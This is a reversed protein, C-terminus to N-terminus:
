PLFQPVLVKFVSLYYKLANISTGLVACSLRPILMSNVAAISPSSDRMPERETDPSSRRIQLSNGALIQSGVDVLRNDETFGDRISHAQVVLNPLVLGNFENM